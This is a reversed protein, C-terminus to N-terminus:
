SHGSGSGSRGGRSRYHGRGSGSNSRSRYNSSGSGSQSGRGSHESGQQRGGGGRGRYGSGSHGRGGGQSSGYGSRGGRERYGGGGRGDRDGFGRDFPVREFHPVEMRHIELGPDRQVRRFNDHDRQVLLTVAEGKDGARATRGIRHIYDKATKPVDYNYVHTVNRIDLGRAAVDTAVLIDTSEEKLADLSRERKDQSMGGHIAMANLGLRKLNRAVVDSEGRTGCFVLAPGRTSHKLLHVLLSFKLSPSLIDYYVQKLKAKDVHTGAYVFIPEHLHRKVISNLVDYLTASFMLTQRKKPVHRIIEEVDDIFGMDLMRDTEDLVLSRVRTLDITRRNLHDLIRGPTGVVVETHSLKRIQNDIGVGGYVSTVNVNLGKGLEAFVDSVQVCLERTPTLVLAQIGRGPVTKELIPLAFALTKGSGTEAQGVVDKGELIKRISKEQIETLSEFGMAKANALIRPNVNLEEFKM